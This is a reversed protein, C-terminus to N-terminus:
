PKSHIAHYTDKLNQPLAGNYALNGNYLILLHSALESAEELSHTTMIVMCEKQEHLTQIFLEREIPDLGNTPEDLLLVAPSGCLALALNLRRKFGLSLHRVQINRVEYLRCLGILREREESCQQINKFACYLELAEYVKYHTWFFLDDPQWGIYTRYADDVISSLREKGNYLMVSGSDPATIGAMINLLLTKGAGNEGLLVTLPGKATFSLPQLVTKRGFSKSITNASLMM